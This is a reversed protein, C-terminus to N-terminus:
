TLVPNVPNVPNKVNREIYLIKVDLYKHFRCTCVFQFRQCATAPHVNEENQPLRGAGDFRVRLVADRLELHTAAVEGNEFSEQVLPRQRNVFDSFLNQQRTTGYGRRDVTQFVFCQDLSASM